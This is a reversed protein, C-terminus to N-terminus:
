RAPICVSVRGPIRGSPRGRHWAALNLLVMGLAVLSPFALTWFWPLEAATFSIMRSPHRAPRAKFLASPHISRSVDVQPPAGRREGRSGTGRTFGDTETRGDFEATRVSARAAGPPSTRANGFM